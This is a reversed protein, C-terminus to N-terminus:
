NQSIAKYLTFCREHVAIRLMVVQAHSATSFLFPLFSTVSSFKTWAGERSIVTIRCKSRHLYRPCCLALTLTIIPNKTWPIPYPNLNLKPDPNPNPNSNPNRKVNVNVVPAITAPANHRVFEFDCTFHKNVYYRSWMAGRWIWAVIVVDSYLTAWFSRLM